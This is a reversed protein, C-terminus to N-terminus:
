NTICDCSDCENGDIVKVCYSSVNQFSPPLTFTFPIDGDGLTAVYICTENPGCYNCIWIDFPETGTINQITVESNM